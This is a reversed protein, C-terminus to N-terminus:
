EKSNWFLEGYKCHEVMINPFAPRCAQMRQLCKKHGCILLVMLSIPIRTGGHIPKIAMCCKRIFTNLLPVPM